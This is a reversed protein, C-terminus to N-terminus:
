IPDTTTFIFSGHKKHLALEVQCEDEKINHYAIWLRTISAWFPGPFNRLPSLLRYRVFQKIWGFLIYAVFVFFLNRITLLSVVTQSVTAVM